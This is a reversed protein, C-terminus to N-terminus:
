DLKSGHKDGYVPTAPNVGSQCYNRMANKANKKEKKVQTMWTKKPGGRKRKGKVEFELAKRFGYEDNRRLVHGYM